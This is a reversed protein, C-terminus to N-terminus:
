RVVAQRLMATTREDVMRLIREAEAANKQRILADMAAHVGRHIDEAILEAGKNMEIKAM